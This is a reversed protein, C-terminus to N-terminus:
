ILCGTAVIYLHPVLVGEGGDDALLLHLQRQHEVGDVRADAADQDPALAAGRLRGGDPGQCGEQGLPLHDDAAVVRAVRVGGAVQARIAAGAELGALLQGRRQRPHAHDLQGHPGALVPHDAGDVEFGRDPMALPTELRPQQGLGVAVDKIDVLDVQKVVVEDVDEEVGGGHPDVGHLTLADGEGM